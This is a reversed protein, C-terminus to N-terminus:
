MQGTEIILGKRKTPVGLGQLVRSTHEDTGLVSSDHPRNLGITNDVTGPVKSLVPPTSACTVFLLETASAAAQTTVHYRSGAGSFPALVLRHRAAVGDSLPLGTTLRPRLAM